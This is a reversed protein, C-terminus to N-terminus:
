RGLDWLLTKSVTIQLDLFNSSQAANFVLLGKVKNDQEGFRKQCSRLVYIPRANKHWALANGGM